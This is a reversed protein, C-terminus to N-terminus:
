EHQSGVGNQGVRLASERLDAAIAPMALFIMSPPGGTVMEESTLALVLCVVMLAAAITADQLHISLSRRVAGSVLASATTAILYGMSCLGLLGAGVLVEVYASHATGIGPNYALALSRSAYFGLGIVPSEILVRQVLVQWLPLRDSLTSLSRTDRILYAVVGRWAETLAVLPGVAGLVMFAKRSDSGRPGMAAALMVGLAVAVYGTRVQSLMLLVVGSALALRRTKPGVVTGGALVGVLLLSAASGAGGLAGGMLRSGAWVSSPFFVGLLLLWIAVAFASHVFRLVLDHAGFKLVWFYGFLVTLGVQSAKYLTLGPSVSQVASLLLAAALMLGASVPASLRPLRRHVLAYVNFENFIWLGVMLWVAINVGVAWDLQLGLSALVDRSRLRPPGWFALLFLLSEM